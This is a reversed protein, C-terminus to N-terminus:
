SLELARVRIVSKSVLNDWLIGKRLQLKWVITYRLSSFDPQSVVPTNFDFEFEDDFDFPIELDTNQMIAQPSFTAAPLRTVIFVAGCLM